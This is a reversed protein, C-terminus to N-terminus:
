WRLQVTIIYHENEIKKYIVEFYTYTAIIKNGQYRKKGKQIATSIEHESIGREIMRLRAHKSYKINLM